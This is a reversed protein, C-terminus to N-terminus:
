ASSPLWRQYENRWGRLIALSFQGLQSRKIGLRYVWSRDGMQDCSHRFREKKWCRSVSSPVRRLTWQQMRISSNKQCRIATTCPHYHWRRIAGDQALLMGEGAHILHFCWHTSSRDRTAQIAWRGRSTAVILGGRRIYDVFSRGVVNTPRYEICCAARWTWCRRM